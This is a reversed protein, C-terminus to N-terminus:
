FPFVIERFKGDPKELLVKDGKKRAENFYKKENIADRLTDTLTQGRTKAMEELAQYEEELLTFTMRRANTTVSEPKLEPSTNM